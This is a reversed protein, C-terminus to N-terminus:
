GPQTKRALADAIWGDLTGGFLVDSMLRGNVYVTPTGQLGLRVGEERDADVLEAGHGADFDAAFKAPDLGVDTALEILMPETLTTQNAFIADHMDWFKGSKQAIVSAVAASKAVSHSRLPFHKFVLRASGGSRDVAKRLEGAELRCHPCQFDAFVVVTVPATADGYVPRGKVDIQRPKLADAVIPLDHRINETSAGADIADAIFQALVTSDYCGPDDRMSQAMSHPRNCASTETNIISFFVDKQGRSLGRLSVNPAEHIFDDDGPSAPSALTSPQAGGPDPEPSRVQTGEAPPVALPGCAPATWLLLSPVILPLLRRLGTCLSARLVRSSGGSV